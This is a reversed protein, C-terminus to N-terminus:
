CAPQLCRQPAQRMDAQPSARAAPCLWSAPFRLPGRALCSRHLSLAYKDTLSYLQDQIFKAGIESFVDIDIQEYDFTCWM